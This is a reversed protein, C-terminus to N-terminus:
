GSVFSYELLNLFMKRYNIEIFNNRAVIAIRAPPQQIERQADQDLSSPHDEAMMLRHRPQVRPLHLQHLDKVTKTTKTWKSHILPSEQQQECNDQGSKIQYSLQRLCKRLYEM